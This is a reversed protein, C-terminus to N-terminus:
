LGHFGGRLVHELEPLLGAGPEFVLELGDPGLLQSPLQASGRIGDAEQQPVDAIHLQEERLIYEPGGLDLDDGACHDVLSVGPFPGVELLEQVVDLVAAVRQGGDDGGLGVRVPFVGDGGLLKARLRFGLGQAPNHRVSGVM